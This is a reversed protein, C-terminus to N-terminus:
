PKVTKVACILNQNYDNSIPGSRTIEWNSNWLYEMVSMRESNPCVLQVSKLFSADPLRVESMQTIYKELGGSIM